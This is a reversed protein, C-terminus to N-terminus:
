FRRVKRKVEDDWFGRVASVEKPLPKGKEIKLGGVRFYTAGNDFYPTIRNDAQLRRIALGARHALNYFPAGKGTITAYKANKGLKKILEFVSECFTPFGKEDTIDLTEVDSYRDNPNKM